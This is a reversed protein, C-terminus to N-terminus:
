KNEANTVICGSGDNGLVLTWTAIVVTYRSRTSESEGFGAIMIGYLHGGRAEM